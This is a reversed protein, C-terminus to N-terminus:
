GRLAAGLLSWKRAGGELRGIAKQGVQQGTSFGGVTQPGTVQKAEDGARETEYTMFLGRVLIM